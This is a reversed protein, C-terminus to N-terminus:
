DVWVDVLENQTTVTNRSPLPGGNVSSNQNSFMVAGTFLITRYMKAASVKRESPSTAPPIAPNVAIHVPTEASAVMTVKRTLEESNM